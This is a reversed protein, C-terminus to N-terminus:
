QGFTNPYLNMNPYMNPLWNNLRSPINPFNGLGVNQMPLQGMGLKQINHHKNNDGLINGRGQGINPTTLGINKQAPLTPLTGRQPITIDTPTTNAPALKGFSNMLGMGGQIAANIGMAKNQNYAGVKGLHYNIMDNYKAIADEHAAREEATMAQTASDMRNLGAQHYAEQQAALQPTVNQMRQQAAASVGLAQAGSTSNRQAQATTDAAQQRVQEYAMRVAPSEANARARADALMNKIYESPKYTPRNAIQAKLKADADRQKQANSIASGIGYLLSAGSIAAGVPNTLGLAAGAAGGMGGLFDSM